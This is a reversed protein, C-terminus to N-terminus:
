TENKIERWKEITLALYSINAPMSSGCLVYSLNIDHFMEKIVNIAHKLMQSKECVKELYDLESSKRPEITKSLGEWIARSIRARAMQKIRQLLPVHDFPYGYSSECSALEADLYKIISGEYEGHNGLYAMGKYAESIIQPELFPALCFSITNYADVVHGQGEPMFIESYYRRVSLMDIQGRLKIGLIRECKLVHYEAVRYKLIHGNIAKNFYPNFVIESLFKEINISNGIICYHNRYVEGGVGTLTFPSGETARIRYEATYTPSLGGIDFSTRGDFFVVNEMLQSDINGSISDYKETVIINCPLLKKKTMDLAVKKEKDHVKGTSHTHIHLNEKYLPYIAALLLTSDYGGSLGLDISSKKIAADWKLLYKRLIEGQWAASKERGCRHNQINEVIFTNKIFSIKRSMLNIKNQICSNVQIIENFVTDPSVIIGTLFKEYVAMKNVTLNEMAAAIAFLSSSFITYSTNTYVHKVNTPDQIIHVKEHIYFLITYHGLLENKNFSGSKFDNLLEKLSTTFDKEKYIFTGVAFIAEGESEYFQPKNALLKPYLILHYKGLNFKSPKNFGKEQFVGVVKDINLKENEEYIFFAGM